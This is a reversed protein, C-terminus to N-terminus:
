TWVIDAPDRALPGLAEKWQYMILIDMLDSPQGSRRREMEARLRELAGHV